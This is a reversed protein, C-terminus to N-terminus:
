ILEHRPKSIIELLSQAEVTSVKLGKTDLKEVIFKEHDPEEMLYDKIMQCTADKNKIKVIYLWAKKEHQLGLLLGNSRDNTAKGVKGETRRKRRIIEKFSDRQSEEPQRQQAVQRGQKELTITQM